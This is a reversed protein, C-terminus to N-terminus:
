FMFVFFIKLFVYLFTIIKLFIYLFFLFILDPMLALYTLGLAQGMFFASAHPGKNKKSYIIGWEKGFFFFSTDGVIAWLGAM